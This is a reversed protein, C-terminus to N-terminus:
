RPTLATRAFVAVTAIKRPSPAKTQPVIISSRYLMAGGCAFRTSAPAPTASLFPPRGRQAPSKPASKRSTMQTRLCCKRRRSCRGSLSPM